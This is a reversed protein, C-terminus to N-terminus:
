AVGFRQKLALIFEGEAKSVKEGSGFLGHGAAVAVKQALEVLVKKFERTEPDDVLFRTAENIRARYTNEAARRQAISYSQIDQISEEIGARMNQILANQPYARKAEDIFKTGNRFERLTGVRDTVDILLTAMMIDSSLVAIRAMQEQTYRAM